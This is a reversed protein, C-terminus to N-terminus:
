PAGASVDEGASTAAPSTVGPRGMLSRIGVLAAPALLVIPVIALVAVPFGGAGFLALLAAIISLVWAVAYAAHVWRPPRGAVSARRAAARLGLYFVGGTAIGVVVVLVLMSSILPERTGAEAAATVFLGSCLGFVTAQVWSPRKTLYAALLAWIM